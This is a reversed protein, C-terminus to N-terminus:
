VTSAWQLETAATTTVLGKARRPQLRGRHRRTTSIPQPRTPLSSGGRTAPVLAPATAAEAGVSHPGCLTRMFGGTNVVPGRVASGSGACETEPKKGPILRM